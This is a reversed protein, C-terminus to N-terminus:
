DEEYEVVFRLGAEPRPQLAEFRRDLEACLADYRKKRAPYETDNRNLPTAYIAVASILQSITLHGPWVDDTPM